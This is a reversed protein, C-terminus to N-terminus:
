SLYFGLETDQQDTPWQNLKGEYGELSPILSVLPKTEQWERSIRSLMLHKCTHELSKNVALWICVHVNITPTHYKYWHEKIKM